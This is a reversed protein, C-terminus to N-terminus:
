LTKLIQGAHNGADIDTIVAAIRGDTGIVFTVRAAAFLGNVGYARAAIRDPDALLTISLRDQDHFRRLAEVGDYSLGFVRARRGLEAWGDRLSCMQRTCIPSSARPYFVLVVPLDGIQDHLRVASGTHDTLTFDPAKDGVRNGERPTYRGFGPIWM